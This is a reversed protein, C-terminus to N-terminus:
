NTNSVRCRLGLDLFDLDLEFSEEVLIAGREAFLKPIEHNARLVTLRTHGLLQEFCLLQFQLLLLYTDSSLPSACLVM